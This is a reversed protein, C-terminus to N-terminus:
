LVTFLEGERLVLKVHSGHLLGLFGYLGDVGPKLKDHLGALVVQAVLRSELSHSQAFTRTSTRSLWLHIMHISVYSTAGVQIGHM